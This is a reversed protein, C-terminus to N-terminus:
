KVICEDYILGFNRVLIITGEKLFLIYNGQNQM